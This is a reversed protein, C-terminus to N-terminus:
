SVGSPGISRSSKARVQTMKKIPDVLVEQVDMTEVLRVDTVPAADRKQKILEQYISQCLQRTGEGTLASIQFTPGKFRYRKIFNKIVTIREDGDLMDIKNLVLWRLDSSCM